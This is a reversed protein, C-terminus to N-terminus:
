YLSISKSDFFVMAKFLLKEPRFHSIKLSIKVIVWITKIFVRTDSKETNWITNMLAIELETNIKGSNKINSLLFESKFLKLVLTILTSLENKAM